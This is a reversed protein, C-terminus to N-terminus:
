LRRARFRFYGKRADVAVDTFGARELRAGFAAPDVPVMTDFRHAVWFLLSMRSDAGVFVAGPELM